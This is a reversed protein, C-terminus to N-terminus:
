QGSACSRGSPQTFDQAISQAHGPTPPGPDFEPPLPLHRGVANHDRLTKTLTKMDQCSTSSLAQRAEELLDVPVPFSGFLYANCHAVLLQRALLFRATDIPTRPEGSRYLSPSGWLVGLAHPLTAVSGLGGLDIAGLDLCQQLAPEHNKFFGEDRTLLPEPCTGTEECNPPPPAEPPECVLRAGCQDEGLPWVVRFTTDFIGDDSGDKAALARCEEYTSMYLTYTDEVSGGVPVALPTAHKFSWGYEALVPDEARQAVSETSPHINTLRYDFRLAAPYDSVHAVVQGNVRKECEFEHASAASGVGLAAAIVAAGWGRGRHM